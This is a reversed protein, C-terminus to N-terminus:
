ALLDIILGIGSPPKARPQSGPDAAEASADRGKVAGVQPVPQIPTYVVPVPISSLQM